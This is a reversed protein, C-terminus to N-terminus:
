KNEKSSAKALKPIKNMPGTSSSATSVPGVEILEKNYNNYSQRGIGSYNQGSSSDYEIQFKPKMKYNYDDTSNDNDLNNGNTSNSKEIIWHTREVSKQQDKEIQKREEADDKRKM